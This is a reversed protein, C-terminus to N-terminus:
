EEAYIYMRACCGEEGDGNGAMLETMERAEEAPSADRWTGFQKFFNDFNCMNTDVLKYTSISSGVALMSGDPCVLQSWMM